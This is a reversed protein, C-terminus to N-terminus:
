YDNKEEEEDLVIDAWSKKKKFVVGIKKLSHNLKIEILLSTYNEQRKKEKVPYDKDYSLKKKYKTSKNYNSDVYGGIYLDRKKKNGNETAKKRAKKNRNNVINLLSKTTVTVVTVLYPVKDKSHLFTCRTGDCDPKPCQIKTSLIWWLQADEECIPESIDACIPDLIKFEQNRNCINTYSEHDRYGSISEGGSWFTGYNNKVMTIGSDYRRGIICSSDGIDGRQVIKKIICSQGYKLISEKQMDRPSSSSTM